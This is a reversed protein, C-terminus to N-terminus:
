PSGIRGSQSRQLFPDQPFVGGRGLIIPPHWGKGGAVVRRTVHKTDSRKEHKQRAQRPSPESTCNCTPIVLGSQSQWSM